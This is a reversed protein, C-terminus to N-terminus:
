NIQENFNVVSTESLKSVSINRNVLTNKLYNNEKENKINKEKSCKSLNISNRACGCSKTRGSTLADQFISKVNGCECECIWKKRSKYNADQKIVTLRGFKKGVLKNKKLCGCSPYKINRFQESSMLIENECDCKCRYLIRGKHNRQDSREIITLKGRREGILKNKACGCSPNKHYKLYQTTQYTENGCDCRCKWLFHNEEDRKDTRELVLLQGFKQSSLDKSFMEQKLCGCSKTGGSLLSGQAIDKIKGCDCRCTWMKITKFSKREIKDEARKLVVLRGYRQGTLDRYIRM